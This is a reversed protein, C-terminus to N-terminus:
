DLRKVKRELDQVARRLSRIDAQVSDLRSVFKDVRRGDAGSKQEMAAIQQGQSAVLVSMEEIQQRSIDDHEKALEESADLRAGIEELASRIESIELQRKALESQLLEDFSPGEVKPEIAVRPVPATRVAEDLSAMQEQLRSIDVQTTKLHRYAFSVGAGLILVVALSVGLLAQLRRTTKLLDEQRGKLDEVTDELSSTEAM